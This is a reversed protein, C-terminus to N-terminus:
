MLTLADCPLSTCNICKQDATFLCIQHPVHETEEEEQNTQKITQKNSSNIGWKAQNKRLAVKEQERNKPSKHFYYM